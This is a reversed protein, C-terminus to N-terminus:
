ECLHANCKGSKCDTQRACPCGSDFPPVTCSMAALPTPAVVTAVAAVGGILGLTRLLHRRSRLDLEPFKLKGQLLGARNLKRLALWVSQEDAAQGSKKRLAAAIDSVTNRGDCHQWVLSVTPNLCHARNRGRDFVITEGLLKTCILGQKKAVPKM